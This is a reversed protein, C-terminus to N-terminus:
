DSMEAMEGTFFRIKCGKGHYNNYWVGRLLLVKM